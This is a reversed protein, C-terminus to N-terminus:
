HSNRSGRVQRLIRGDKMTKWTQLFDTVHGKKTNDMVLQVLEGFQGM